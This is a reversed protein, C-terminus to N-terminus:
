FTSVAFVTLYNLFFISTLSYLLIDLMVSLYLTFYLFVNVCDCYPRWYHAYSVGKFSHSDAGWRCNLPVRYKLPYISYWPMKTKKIDNRTYSNWKGSTTTKTSIFTGLVWVRIAAWHTGPHHISPKWNIFHLAQGHAMTLLM